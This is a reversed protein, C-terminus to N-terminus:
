QLGIFSELYAEVASTFSASQCLYATFTLEGLQTGETDSDIDVLAAAAIVVDDKLISVDSLEVEETGMVEDGSYLYLSVNDGLVALRDDELKVWNENDVSYTLNGETTDEIVVFIYVGIGETVNVTLKPDKAIEMGSVVALYNNAIVKYTDSLVYAGNEFTALSEVLFFGNQLEVGASEEPNTPDVVEPAEPEDTDILGNMAVFTNVVAEDGNQTAVLVSFTGTALLCLILLLSTIFILERKKNRNREQKMEKLEKLFVYFAVNDWYVCKKIVM